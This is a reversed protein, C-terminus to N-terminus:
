TTPHKKRIHLATFLIFSSATAISLFSGLFFSTPKYIFNVVHDGQPLFIARQVINAALIETEKGDIYAKWGPYFLDSVVLYGDENNQKVSLELQQDANKTTTIAPEKVPNNSVKIVKGDEKELIVENQPNFNASSLIKPINEQTAIVKKRVLFARGYSKQQYININPLDKISSKIEHVKKISREEVIFPTLIIETNQLALMKQAFPTVRIINKEAYTIGSQLIANYMAFRSLLNNEYVGSQAIDYLINSNQRLNNRLYLFPKMDEWGTKLFINNWEAGSGLTLIRGNTLKSIEIAAEPPTFFVKASITPHYRYWVRFIDIATILIIFFLAVNSFIFPLKKQMQNQLEHLSIGALLTLSWVLLLLFRSPVRFFSLPPFTYFISTPAYKGFMLFASVIALLVFFVAYKNKKLLFLSSLSLLFPLIGIYGTNEWFISGDFDAFHPYTGNAPNGFVFPDIFGLLHTPPFSFLTATVPNVGGSRGSLSLFELAPLLLASSLFFGIFVTVTYLLLLRIATTFGETAPFKEKRKLRFRFSIPILLYIAFVSIGFLSILTLQAFGYYFSLAITFSLFLMTLPKCYSTFLLKTALFLWPLMSMTQVLNLHPIHTIGFGSFTFIVSTFFSATNSFSLSKCFLYTGVGMLAFTIPYTLNFALPFPLLGFLAINIPHLTGGQHEAFIPFGNALDKTWLPLTYQKLANSLIYKHPINLMWLDSQGYDPTSFITLNPYFLNLFYFACLVIIVLPFFFLSIYKKVM